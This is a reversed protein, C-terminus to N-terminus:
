KISRFSDTPLHLFYQGAQDLLANVVWPKGLGGNGPHGQAPVQPDGLNVKRGMATRM